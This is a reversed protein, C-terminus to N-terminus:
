RGARALIDAENAIDWQAGIVGNMIRDWEEIPVLYGPVTVRHEDLAEAIGEGFIDAPKGHHDILYEVAVTVHRDSIRRQWNRPIEVYTGSGYRICRFSPAIDALRMDYVRPEPTGDAWYWRGDEGRRLAGNLATITDAMEKTRREAM